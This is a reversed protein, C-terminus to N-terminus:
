EPQRGPMIRFAGKPVTLAFRTFGDYSLLWHRM